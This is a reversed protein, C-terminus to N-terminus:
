SPDGLSEICGFFPVSPRNPVISLKELVKGSSPREFLDVLRYAVEGHGKRASHVAPWGASIRAIEAPDVIQLSGGQMPYCTACTRVAEHSIRRGARGRFVKYVSAGRAQRSCLVTACPKPYAHSVLTDKNLGICETFDAHRLNQFGV